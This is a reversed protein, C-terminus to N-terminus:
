EKAACAAITGTWMNSLGHSSPLLFSSHKMEPALLWAPSGLVREAKKVVMTVAM